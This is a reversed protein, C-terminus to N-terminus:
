ADEDDLDNSPKDVTGDLLDALADERLQSLCAQVEDLTRLVGAAETPRLQGCRLPHFSDATAGLLASVMRLADTRTLCVPHQGERGPKYNTEIKILQRNGFSDAYVGSEDTECDTSPKYTTVAEM